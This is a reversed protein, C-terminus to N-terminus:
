LSRFNNSFNSSAGGTVSSGQLNLVADKDLSNELYVEEEEEVEIVLVGDLLGEFARCKKKIRQM